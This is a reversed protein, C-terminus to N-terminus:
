PCPSEEPHGVDPVAAVAPDLGPLWRDLVTRVPCRAELQCLVGVIGLWVRHTFLHEPPMTLQLAVAFDPNRPDGLRGFQAELWEPTFSFVEHRSPETFPSLYDRLKIPDVESGPRVFGEASCGRASPWPTM